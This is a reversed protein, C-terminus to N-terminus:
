NSGHIVTQKSGSYSLHVYGRLTASPRTSVLLRKAQLLTQVCCVHQVMRNVSETCQSFFAKMKWGKQKNRHTNSLTLTVTNSITM